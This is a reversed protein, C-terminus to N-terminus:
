STKPTRQAQRHGQLTRTWSSLSREQKQWVPPRVVGVHDILYLALVLGSLVRETLEDCLSQGGDELVFTSISEEDIPPVVHRPFTLPKM